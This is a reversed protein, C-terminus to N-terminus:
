LILYASVTLLYLSKYICIIGCRQGSSRDLTISMGITTKSCKGYNLRLELHKVRTIQRSSDSGPFSSLSPIIRSQADRSHGLCCPAKPFLGSPLAGPIM